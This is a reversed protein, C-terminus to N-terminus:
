RGVGHLMIGGHVRYFAGPDYQAFIRRMAIENHTGTLRGSKKNHGRRTRKRKVNSFMRSTM